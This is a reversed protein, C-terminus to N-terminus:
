KGGGSGGGNGSSLDDNNVSKSTRKVSASLSGLRLRVGARVSWNHSRTHQTLNFGEGSRSHNYNYYPEFFDNASLSLTLRDNLLTKSVTIGYWHVIQSNNYQMYVGSSYMGAYASFEWHSPLSYDASMNANYGWGDRDLNIIPCLFHRYSASGSLNLNLASVPRCNIYASISLGDSTGVNGYTAHLLGDPALFTYSSILDNSRRYNVSCEGGIAGGFNSYTLGAIHTKASSLDPNGYSLYIQSSNNRTPDLQNVSPRQVQMRYTARINSGDTIRYSILANPVPDHLDTSFDTHGPTRFRTGMHTYEYRIGAKAMFRGFKGIYSAYIAGIDQFQKMDICNPTDPIWEGDNMLLNQTDGYNNRIIYKGGVELTHHSSLPNTYDAQFTHEHTPYSAHNRQNRLLTPDYNFIESYYYDGDNNSQGYNYQYSLVVNHEPSSFNHQWNAQAGLGFWKSRTDSNTLYSSLLSGDAALYKSPERSTNHSNYGMLDATVTFLNLTDPEWSMQLSGYNNYSRNTAKSHRLLRAVPNPDTYGVVTESTYSPGYYNGHNYNASLTVKDIKVTGYAFENASAEGAYVGINAIYGELRTSSFTIINIIGGLGEADYKAGPETIVEIKKVTSAPMSRLVEKYNSSLTPDPKGNLYIKFNSEGKLKINDEGDVSLMPIKRMMDLVSNTSSTPDEDVNYILRDAQTQIVPKRATVEIGDLETVGPISDQTAYAVTDTPETASAALIWLSAMVTCIIRSINMNVNKRISAFSRILTVSGNVFIHRIIPIRLGVRWM